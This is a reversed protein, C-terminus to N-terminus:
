SRKMNMLKNGPTSRASSQGSRFVCFVVLGLAIKQRAGKTLIVTLAIALAATGLYAWGIVQFVSNPTM